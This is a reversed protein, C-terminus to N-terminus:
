RRQPRQRSIGEGSIGTIERIRPPLGGELHLRILRTEVPRKVTGITFSWGIELIRGISTRGCARHSSLRNALGGDLRSSM